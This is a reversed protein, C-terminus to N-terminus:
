RKMSRYTDVVIKEAEQKSIKPNELFKDKIVDLIDGIAKGPKFNPDEKQILAIVDKGDIPIRLKGTFDGLEKMKKRLFEVQNPLNHQWNKTNDGHSINDSHVLELVSDLHNGLDNMLKRLAKDSVLEAEKGFSKTRMHNKIAVVVADIVDNPYKLRNMIQRALDASKFEHGYFHIKGGKETKTEGKGIDHFFAALRVIIDPKANKM